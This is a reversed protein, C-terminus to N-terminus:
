CNAVRLQLRSFVLYAYERLYEVASDVKFKGTSGTRHLVQRHLNSVEVTDGDVLGIKGVGAGSIYLAAPCGLGGAGVLLVSSSRLKLQGPLGIQDVIMQRGYRRYEDPLLPWTQKVSPRPDGPEFTCSNNRQGDGNADNGTKLRKGQRGGDDGNELERRELETLEFKLKQLQAETVAIQAELGKRTNEITM